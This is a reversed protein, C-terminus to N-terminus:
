SHAVSIHDVVHQADAGVGSFLASGTTHMGNLGIFYLGPETTVGRQQHPYGRNGFIDADIWSFDYHEGTAWVVSTIGTSKLDLRTPTTGPAWDVTDVDPPPAEIGHEAIHQDVMGQLQLAVEDAEDLRTEVDDTFTLTSGDAELVRGLLQVGDRGFARPNLNKGGDRGS